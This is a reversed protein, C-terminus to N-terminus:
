GGGVPPFIAVVDGDDLETSFGDLFRINRGNVMVTVGKKLPFDSSSDTLIHGRLGEYDELVENFLEQVNRASTRTVPVGAKDRFSAFFKVKIEM